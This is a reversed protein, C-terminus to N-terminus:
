TASLRKGQRTFSFEKKRAQGESKTDGNSALSGYNRTL